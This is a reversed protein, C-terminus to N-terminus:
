HDIRMSGNPSLSAPGAGEGLLLAEPARGQGLESKNGLWLLPLWM